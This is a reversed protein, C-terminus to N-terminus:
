RTANNRERRFVFYRTIGRWEMEPRSSSHYTVPYEVIVIGSANDIAEKEM